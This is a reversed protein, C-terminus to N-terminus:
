RVGIAEAENFVGQELRDFISIQEAAVQQQFQESAAGFRQAKGLRIMNMLQEVTERLEEKELRETRYLTLVEAKSMDELEQDTYFQKKTTNM